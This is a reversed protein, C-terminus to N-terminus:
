GRVTLVPSRAECLVRHLTPWVLRTSLAGIPAEHAGMVIL